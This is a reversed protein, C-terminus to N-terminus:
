PVTVTPTPTPTLTVTPTPTATSTPTPTLTSTITPTPADPPTPTPTATLTPTLTTQLLPAALGPVRWRNGVADNPGWATGTITMNVTVRLSVCHTAGDAPLDGILWRLAEVTAPETGVWSTGDYYEVAPTTSASGPVYTTDAPITDTLVTNTSTINGSNSYCMTYTIVDGPLVTGTPVNTKILHLVPLQIGVDATDTIPPLVASNEDTAGGVTATDVTVNGPLGQTSQTGTFTVTVVTADGPALDPPTLDAWYIWGAVEDYSTQAPSAGTFDLYATQYTDTLPVITLTIDGTNTIHVTFTVLEGVRVPSASVRQKTMSLRPSTIEVEATDTIIDLPDGHEDTAHVIATNLTVPPSLAQTSTLATFNVLVTTSLGTALPGINTWTVIGSAAGSQPPAASAFALYAADYTDTLPVTTLTIDGTNTVVIQFTVTESVVAIGNAPSLLHKTMAYGPSAIEVDATDTIPELVNNDFDIVDSVVATNVTVDGPLGQTSQTGTFVITVLGSSNPQGAPALDYGWGATLDDWRIWGGAENYATQAPSAGAFDLYATQYTDTLPVVTLTVANTNTIQVTFTVLDGVRVPSTSVRQKTMEYGSCSCTTSATTQNNTEDCECIEDPIDVTLTFPHVVGCLAPATTYSVTQSIGADLTVTTSYIQGGADYLHVVADTAATGGGNSIVGSVVIPNQGGTGPQCTASMDIVTLDPYDLSIDASSTIPCGGCTLTVV